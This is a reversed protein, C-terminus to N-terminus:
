FRYAAQARGVQMVEVDPDPEIRDPEFPCDVTLRGHEGPGLVLAARQERFGERDRKGRVLAVAVPMRTGGENALVFAVQCTGGPGPRRRAETVRYCPLATGFFWDGAFADFARPDHARPRLTELLDRVDAYHSPEDRFREFFDRLGALFAERGMANMLMWFAWPAKDYAYAMGMAMGGGDLNRSAALPTEADVSRARGYLDELLRFFARRQAPGKVAEFLLAASFQALGETLVEAGPGQAPALANGWWLHAAEHATVGFAQDFGNGPAALFGFGESFSIAAPLSQAYHDLDPFEALTLRAGPILGYLRGYYERSAALAQLMSPVNFPHTPDSLVACGPGEQTRWRGYQVFFWRVPSESVWLATRRGGAVTEQALAGVSRFTLLAPGSLRIRTAFAGRAGSFNPIRGSADPRPTEPPDAETEGTTGIDERYGLRPMCHRERFLGASALMFYPTRGGNRTIGVLTRGDYAFGVRVRGGPALPRGELHLVQLGARNEAVTPAGDLTWTIPGFSLPVTFPIRNLAIPLANELLLEGHGRLGRTAPDLDLDLDVSRLEPVPYDRYTEVNKRWYLRAEAERAGGEQGQHVLLGLTAALLGVPVALALFPAAARLLPLPQLSSLLRAADRERGARFRLALALLLGALGLALLRNLVLAIRDMQFPALDSWRLCGALLWNGAWTMHGTFLCFGTLGLAALGTSWTGYRGAGLAHVAAIFCTWLLLTPVTLAGWALLFPELRIPVTGQFALLGLCLLFQAALTLGALALNAGIRGLFLSSPPIPSADVLPAMRASRDRELSEVIGLLLMLCLLAPARSSLEVALHGPTLLLPSGTVPDQFHLARMFTDMLILAGLLWIGPNRALLPFELRFATGLGEIWGPRRMPAELNWFDFAGATRRSEPLPSPERHRGERGLAERAYARASWAVTGLGIGAWALRSALFAFGYSLRSANYVASGPDVRGWTSEFWRGSSPDLLVLLKDIRPDLGEPFWPVMFFFDLLFLVLPIAIVLYMNRTRTGIGFTTGGVFLMLPLILFVTPGVYARLLFPGNGHPPYASFIALSACQVLHLLLYAAVVSAFKAWVYEWPRLPTAHLLPGVLHQDDRSVAFGAAVAMFFANFQVWTFPFVMAVSAECNAFVGAGHAMGEHAADAHGQYYGLWFVLAALVWFSVRRIHGNLDLALITLLRRASM